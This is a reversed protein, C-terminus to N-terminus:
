LVTVWARRYGSPMSRFSIGESPVGYLLCAVATDDDWRELPFIYPCPVLTLVQYADYSAEKFRKVTPPVGHLVIDGLEEPGGLKALNRPLLRRVKECLHRSFANRYLKNHLSFLNVPSSLDFAEIRVARVPTGLFFDGGCSERFPGAVFSKEKNILFGLVSLVRMLPVALSSPCIIDDGYVSFNKRHLPVCMKEAVAMVISSFIATELEFTYGNGMSSFKELKVWRGNPLLTFPSRVANLLQYWSDPTVLRVLEHAVTDSASSLDITALSDDASGQQALNRHIEQSNSLLLGHRNLSSRMADGLGLQVFLNLGPEIAIPRDTKGDKPVTTFRNGRVLPLDCSFIPCESFLNGQVARFWATNRVDRLFIWADATMEPLQSLKEPLSVRPGRVGFTSGPGLKYNLSSPVRGLLRSMNKRILDIIEDASHSEGETYRSLRYNTRFCEHEAQLWKEYAVAATDIGTPLCNLKRLLDCASVARFYTAEDAFMMPQVSARALQEYEGHRLLIAASLSHACDLAQFYSLAIDQIHTDM